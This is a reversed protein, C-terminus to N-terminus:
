YNNASKLANIILDTNYKMMELYTPALSKSLAGSILAGEIKAKTESEVVKILRKDSTTETFIANIRLARILKVLKALDAASAESETSLGQLSHVQFSYDRALYAFANHPVVLRRKDSDITSVATKIAQHLNEIKDLYARENELFIAENAPAAKILGQTINRVYVKAALLSHWAHPDFVNNADLHDHGHHEHHDEEVHINGHAKDDIKNIKILKVGETAELVAGKFHAASLLRALWGEYGLGNLILLDANAIQKVDDPSPQYVHADEDWDVLTTVSVTEQGIQQVMDALVSFTTVVNLKKPSLSQDGAAIVPATIFSVVCVLLWTLRKM